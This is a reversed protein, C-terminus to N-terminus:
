NSEPVQWQGDEDPDWQNRHAIHQDVNSVESNHGGIFQQQRWSHSHYPGYFAALTTSFSLAV